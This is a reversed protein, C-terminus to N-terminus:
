KVSSVKYKQELSQIQGLIQTVSGDFETQKSNLGSAQVLGDVIATIKGDTRGWDGAIGDVIKMLPGSNRRQTQSNQQATSNQTSPGQPQQQLTREAVSQADALQKNMNGIFAALEDRVGQFTPSVFVSQLGAAVQVGRSQYSGMAAAIEEDSNMRSLVSVIDSAQKALPALAGLNDAFPTAIDAIERGQDLSLRLLRALEACSSPENKEDIKKQGDALAKRFRALSDELGEQGPLSQALSGRLQSLRSTVNDLIPRTRQLYDRVDNQVSGCGGVVFAAALVAVLTVAAVRSLYRRCGARNKTRLRLGEV